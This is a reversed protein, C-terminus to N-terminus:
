KKILKFRKIHGYHDIIEVIYPGAMLHGIAIDSGPYEVSCILHGLLNYVNMRAISSASQISVWDSAPNPFLSYLPHDSEFQGLGSVVAISKTYTFDCTEEFLTVQVTMNGTAGPTFSYDSTTIVNVFQGLTSHYVVVHMSDANGIPIIVM